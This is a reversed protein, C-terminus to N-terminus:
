QNLQKAQRRKKIAEHPYYIFYYYAVLILGILFFILAFPRLGDDFYFEGIMWIVNAAIWCCVALNHLLEVLSKRNVWMLLFALIITPIAIILGAIKFDSVWCVDKILWLFIHFNEFARLRSLM